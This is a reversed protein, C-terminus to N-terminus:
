IEQWKMALGKVDSLIVRHKFYALKIHGQLVQLTIKPLYHLVKKAIKLAVNKCM